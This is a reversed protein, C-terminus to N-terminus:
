SIKKFEVDIKDYDVLYLNDEGKTLADQFETEILEQAIVGQYLGEENKYNFQYINIGSESKGILNLNEKYHIDSKQNNCEGYYYQTTAYAPDSACYCYNISGDGQNPQRVCAYGYCNGSHGFNFFITAGSSCQFGYVQNSYFYPCSDCCQKYYCDYGYNHTVLAYRNRSDGEELTLFLDLEEFDLSYATLKEFKYNIDTVSSVILTDISNDFVLLKDNAKIRGYTQFRVTSSDGDLVMIKAHEVDSFISGQETTITVIEGFFDIETKGRLASSSVNYQTLLSDLSSSWELFASGTHSENQDITAFNLSKVTDGISLNQVFVSENNQYIVRTNVDASLIAAHDSVGNYYKPVYRLRDWYQVQNNDDFDANDLVELLSTREIVNLNIIDLDSGYLLDISRYFKVRNDLLDETNYIFEQIYEDIELGSKLAELEEVSNIKHLKPYVKNDSPTVRKKVCYNPHNGNDRLATGINDIGLESDNIYCKPISNNDTDYMLKLFEWNDRSYTDDILATTDYALRITLTEDNDEIFPITVANIDTNIKEFLINSGTCYNRLYDDLKMTNVFSSSAENLSASRYALVSDYDYDVSGDIFGVCQSANSILNIKSFNNSEIFSEFSGSDFNLLFQVGLQINTNTEIAKFSGDIDKMFDTGIIVARM